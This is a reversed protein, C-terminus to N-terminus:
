RRIGALRVHGEAPGIGRDIGHDNVTGLIGIVYIRGSL